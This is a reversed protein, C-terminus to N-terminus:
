TNEVTLFMFYRIRTCLNAKSFVNIINIFVKRKLLDNNNFSRVYGIQKISHKLKCFERCLPRPSSYILLPEKASDKKPSCEAFDKVVPIPYKVSHKFCEAFDKGLTASPLSPETFLVDAFVDKSLVKERASPVSKASHWLASPLSFRDDRRRPPPSPAKATHRRICEAFHYRRQRTDAPWCEAFFGDAPGKTLNKVSHWPGAV